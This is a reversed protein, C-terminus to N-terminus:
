ESGYKVESDAENWSVYVKEVAILNGDSRLKLTEISNNVRYDRMNEMGTEPIIPEYAELTSVTGDNSVFSICPVVTDFQGEFEAAAGEPANGHRYVGGTAYYGNDTIIRPEAATAEAKTSIVTCVTDSIYTFEPAPVAPANAEDASGGCGTLVLLLILVPILPLFKLVKDNM